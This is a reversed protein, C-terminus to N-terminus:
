TDFRPAWKWTDGMAFTIRNTDGVILEVGMFRQVPYRMHIDPINVDGEKLRSVHAFLHMMSNGSVLAYDPTVGYKQYFKNIRKMLRDAFAKGRQADSIVVKRAM